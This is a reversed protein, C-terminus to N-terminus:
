PGAPVGVFAPGHVTPDGCVAVDDRGRILM